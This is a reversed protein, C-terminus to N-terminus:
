QKRTKLRAFALAFWAFLALCACCPFAGKRARTDREVGGQHKTRRFFAFFYHWNQLRTLGLKPIVKPKQQRICNIKISMKCPLSRILFISRLVPRNQSSKKDKITNCISEARFMFHGLPTVAEKIKLWRKLVTIVLSVIFVYHSKQLRRLRTQPCHPTQIGHHHLFSLWATSDGAVQSQFSLVSATELHCPINALQSCTM